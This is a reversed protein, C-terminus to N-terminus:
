DEKKKAEEKTRKLTMYHLILDTFEGTRLHAVNFSNKEIFPEELVSEPNNIVEQHAVLKRRTGMTTDGKLILAGLEKIRREAEAVQARVAIVGESSRIANFIYQGITIKTNHIVPSDEWRIICEYLFEGIKRLRENIEDEPIIKDTEILTNLMDGALKKGENEAKIAYTAGFMAVDSIVDIAEVVPHSRLLQFTILPEDSEPQLVAIIATPILEREQGIRVQAMAPYAPIGLERLVGVSILLPELPNGLVSYTAGSVDDEVTGYIQTLLKGATVLGDDVDYIASDDVALRLENYEYERPYEVEREATDLPRLIDIMHEATGHINGGDLIEALREIKGDVDAYPGEEDSISYKDLEEKAKKCQAKITAANEERKKLLSHVKRGKDKLVERHSPKDKHSMIYTIPRGREDGEQARVGGLRIRYVGRTM